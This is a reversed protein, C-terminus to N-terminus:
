YKSRKTKGEWRGYGDSLIFLQKYGNKALRLVARTSLTKGEDYMYVPLDERIENYRQSFTSYPINRAGLIHGADFEKKERVDVIQAKRMGEQFADQDLMTAVQNRRVVISIRWGIWALVVGVGLVDFIIEALSMAVLM